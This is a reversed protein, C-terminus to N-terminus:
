RTLAAGLLRQALAYALGADEKRWNLESGVRTKLRETEPRSRFEAYWLLHCAVSVLYEASRRCAGHGHFRILRIAEAYETQPTQLSMPLLPPAYLNMREDDTFPGNFGLTVDLLALDRSAPSEHMTKYFDILIVDIGNRQVFINRPQLDGHSRCVAVTMTSRGALWQRLTDPRRLRWVVRLRKADRYARQLEVWDPSDPLVGCLVYEAVVDLTEERMCSRWVRLPGDLLAAVALHASGLELYEDLRQAREVFNAVLLRHRTGTVSRDLLLSPRFPFSMYDLVHAEINDIERTIRDIHGAKVVYPVPRRRQQDFATVRWITAPSLGGGLPALEIRSFDNFARRLLTRIEDDAVEPLEGAIALDPSPQRGPDHQACREALTCLCRSDHGELVPVRAVLTEPPELDVIMRSADARDPRSRRPLVTAFMAGSDFAPHYLQTLTRKFVNRPSNYPVLVAQM